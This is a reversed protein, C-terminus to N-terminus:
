ILTYVVGLGLTQKLRGRLDIQKDYLFQMYFNVSVVKSVKASLINEWNVDIAKWYDAEPTGKVKDKLSFVLAKFLSLKGTYQINKHVVFNADTVWEVGGESLTSDERIYVAESTVTDEERALGKIIIQRLAFGLRSVLLDNGRSYIQRAIGGSETLKLPSLYRNHGRVSGDYFESEMRLSVYPDVPWGRTLRGVNEWDILDTSKQPRDWKKEEVGTVPDTRIRQTLTQGFSLRLRLTYVFSPSLHKESFGNLNSVWSFSGAEGGVWSNSYATQTATLDFVLSKKWGTSASDQACAASACLAIATVFIVAKAKDFM